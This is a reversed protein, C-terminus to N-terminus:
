CELPPMMFSRGYRKEPNATSQLQGLTNYAFARTQTAGCQPM